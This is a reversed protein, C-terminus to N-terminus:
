VTRPKTYVRHNMYPSLSRVGEVTGISEVAECNLVPECEGQPKVNM